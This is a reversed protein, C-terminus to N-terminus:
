ILSNVQRLWCNPEKTNDIIVDALFKKEDLPMQARLMEQAEKLNIKDRLILRNLQQQFSCNVVWTESCMKMLNLEYLLPIVLIICPEHKKLKLENTFRKIVYPHILKQLWLRENYRQFIIKRLKRRNILTQNDKTHDIIYDGYRKLILKTFPKDPQLAEKSYIDADLVTLKKENELYQSLSSKGSAIGGTLGIRRQAGQLLAEKNKPHFEGTM